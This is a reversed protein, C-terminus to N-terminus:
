QGEAAAHPCARTGTEGRYAPPQGHSPGQGTQWQAARGWGLVLSLCAGPSAPLCVAHRRAGGARASRALAGLRTGGGDSRALARRRRLPM